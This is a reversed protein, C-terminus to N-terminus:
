SMTATSLLCQVLLWDALHSRSLCDLGRSECDAVSGCEQLQAGSLLRMAGRVLAQTDADWALSDLRWVSGDLATYFSGLPFQVVYFVARVVTLWATMCSPVAAAATAADAMRVSGFSNEWALAAAFLPSQRAIHGHMFNSATAAKEARWVGEDLVGPTRLQQVLIDCLSHYPMSKDQDESTAGPVTASLIPLLPLLDLKQKATRFCLLGLLLRLLLV